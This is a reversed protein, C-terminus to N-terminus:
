GSLMLANCGAPFLHSHEFVHHTAQIANCLLAKLIHAIWSLYILLIKYHYIDPQPEKMIM